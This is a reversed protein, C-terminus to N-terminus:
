LQWGLLQVADRRRKPAPLSVSLEVPALDSLVLSEPIIKQPNRWADRVEIDNLMIVDDLKPLPNPTINVKVLATVVSDKGEVRKGSIAFKFGPYRGPLAWSWELVGFKQGTEGHDKEEIM